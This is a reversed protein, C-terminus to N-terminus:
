GVVELGSVNITGRYLIHPVGAFLLPRGGDAFTSGYYDKTRRPLISYKAVKEPTYSDWNDPSLRNENLGDMYKYKYIVTKEVELSSADIQYCSLKIRRGNERYAEEIQSPHVPSLHLVDNWLCDLIPVREKLLSERGQYKKVADIYLDPYMSKLANLPHLTDGKMNPPTWHYLQVTMYNEYHTFQSLSTVHRINYTVSSKFSILLVDFCVIPPSYRSRVASRKCAM